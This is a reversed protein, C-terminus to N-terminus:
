GRLLDRLPRMGLRRVGAEDLARRGAEGGYFTREFERAHADEPTVARLEDSDKAAHCLLGSVGPLLRAVRRRNHEAGEGPAWTLSDFDFHDLVPIGEPELAELPRTFLTELAQWGRDALLAPDPRGLFVPLRYDRALRVVIPVFPRQWVAGMHADLHSVDIGAALATEIQARLEREVEAPDAGRAERATRPLFGEADCLSPVQSRGSIPGWRYSRWESTLTLHVGLDLEPRALARAAAEPFWPCPVMVSGCSAPGNRLAEFAGENAAHCMGVDDVHVVAVRESAPLGLREALSATAPM